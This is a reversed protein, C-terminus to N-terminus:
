FQSLHNFHSGVVKAGGNIKNPSKHRRSIGHTRKQEETEKIYLAM